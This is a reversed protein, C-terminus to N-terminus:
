LKVKLVTSYQLKEAPALKGSEDVAGWQSNAIFYFDNKVLVGLTPEDFVPNNAEITEFRDFHGLDKSLSLKIVRQPNVGNQIGILSGKYYYLGDIGLSTFDSAINNVKKTKLDVLFVGQSYDAVFLQQQDPTFDLGQPSVFPQGEIFTELQNSDHRAVYVAATISDTAFVDGASNIVLDGLWHPKTTDSPQYRALLKGTKLDYKLLATKGKDEALFNAMQPHAASCVWL